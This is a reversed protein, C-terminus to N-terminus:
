EILDYDDFRKVENMIGLEILKKRGDIYPIISTLGGAREKLLNVFQNGASLQEAETLKFFVPKMDNNYLVQDLIQSRKIIADNIDYEVFNEAGECLVQLQEIEHQSERIAIDVDTITGLSILQYSDSKSNQSVELCKRIISLLANWDCAYNDSDQLRRQYLSSLRKYEDFQDFVYNNLEAEYKLNELKEIKESLEKLVKGNKSIKYSLVNFKYVLGPLFPPGTVFWRCRICNAKPYGPVEVYTIRGTDENIIKGGNSCGLCAKTCFGCDTLELQLKYEKASLVVGYVDEDNVVVHNQLQEYSANRLFREFAEEEKRNLEINANNLVDTIHAVGPKTYYLTMLLTSHGAIAKSLIAMPVGGDIAYATILSVRLSHLPYYTKKESDDYVFNIKQEDTKDKNIRNQFEKLIEFWMKDVAFTSIPLHEEGLNCPDRFLFAVEGMQKKIKEDKISGFHKKELESWKTPRSIPNYKSQWDRMKALWFLVEEYQWPIDYGKKDEEKNIDATKNTNIHFGTMYSNTIDDKFRKIVGKCCNNGDDGKCLLSDNRVWEGIENRNEQVYKYTDLEGSDLLRVQLTRLPLLLKILIVVTRGPYWMEYVESIGDLMKEKRSANRSRYVCDPDDFDIIKKDVKFWSASRDNGLLQQALKLDSFTKANLPCLMERLEKIYRYPLVSKDSEYRINRRSDTLYETLPNRYKSIIYKRGFDDTTSFFEDLIWDIFEVVKKAVHAGYDRTVKGKWLIKYFDPAVYDRILFDEVRRPIEYPIIYNKYFKSLSDVASSKDREISDVWAESCRRWEELDPDLELLWKFTVDTTSNRLSKIKVLLEAKKRLKENPRNVLEDTELMIGDTAFKKVMRAVTSDSVNYKRAVEKYSLKNCLVDKIVKERISKDIRPHRRLTPNVEATRIILKEYLDKEQQSLSEINFAKKEKIDHFITLLTTSAIGYKIELEKYTKGDCYESIIELKELITFRGLRKLYQTKDYDIVKIRLEKYKEEMYKPVRNVDVATGDKVKKYWERISQQSLGYKKILEDTPINECYDNILSYVRERLYVYERYLLCKEKIINQLEELKENLFDINSDDILDGDHVIHLWRNVTGYKINYNQYLQEVSAGNCYDEIVNCVLTIKEKEWHKNKEM